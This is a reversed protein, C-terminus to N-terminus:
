VEALAETPTARAARQGPGISALAAALVSVAILGLTWRWDIAFQIGHDLNLEAEKFVANIGLWGFFSGALIGVVTGVLSLLLAEILLMWRLSSKQMGLARLLASERTREVVSLGLTNAVGLLSILVAIGLLGTTVLMMIDLITNIMWAEVAGGGVDLHSFDSTIKQAEGVPGAFDDRNAIKLWAGAPVPKSTLKALDSETIVADTYALKSVKATFTVEGKDGKFTLTDGEKYNKWNDESILIEGDKPGPVLPAVKAAEATYAVVVQDGFDKTPKVETGPLIARESINPMQEIRKQVGKELGAFGDDSSYATFRIDIPFTSEIEDTMTKRTTATGVQLTVILGVALMLATATASARSPNRVSNLAALRSTPGAHDLLRALGRLVAPIFLPAAGLVGFTILFASGLALLIQGADSVMALVALGAGVLVLLGCIIARATSSKRQEEVTRIPQLAELPAVQTARLSPGMASIVTVLTGIVLALVLSGWPIVLGWGLTGIIALAIVSVLVGGLVGLLSGIVGLIMSEALFQRRVQSGSAGVARLLGIQRRRQALLISFTNAIIITGVLLAIGAFVMLLYEAPKTESLMDEVVQQQYDSATKVEFSRDKPDASKVALKQVANTLPDVLSSPSTGSDALVLWLSTYSQEESRPKLQPSYVTGLQFNKPDNTIGTVTATADGDFSMKMTDGVDVKLAKAVDPSLALEGDKEPWRGDTIKAWRFEESPLSIVSVWREAGNARLSTSSGVLPEAQRVGPVKAIAKTIQEETVNEKRNLVNVVVDSGSTPVASMKGLSAGYSRIFVSVTAMFGVSIAIAVITAIVRSPHFRIEKIAASFM